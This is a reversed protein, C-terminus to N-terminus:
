GAVENINMVEDGDPMLTSEPVPEDYEEAYPYKSLIYKRFGKYETNYETPLKHLYCDFGNGIIFLIRM